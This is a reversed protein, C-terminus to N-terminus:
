FLAYNLETLLVLHGAFVHTYNSKGQAWITHKSKSLPWTREGPRPQHYEGITHKVGAEDIYTTVQPKKM